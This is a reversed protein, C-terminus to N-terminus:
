ENERGSASMDFDVPPAKGLLHRVLFDWCRRIQYPTPVYDGNPEVALEVDKNARNFAELMRLNGAIPVYSVLNVLMLLKGKLNSALAELQTEQSDQLPAQQSPGEFFDGQHHFMVRYDFINGCVGVRYFDPHELMGRLVGNGGAFEGIIGVRNLDMYPYRDALQRIGAVHDEILEYDSRGYGAEKFAKDRYGTGRGDIQVVIFGLQALAAARYFHMDTAPRFSSKPVIPMGHGLLTDDLIPYSQDPSFHPPRYIVGCIDTNGDAAKIMVPEPWQWGEPLSLDAKELDMVHRGDRDIVYSLTPEDVCTRSVVAFDGSPSLSRPLGAYGRPMQAFGNIGHAVYEHDGGALTTLEGSDVNVRVLDCYYPHRDKVRGATSLFLDRREADFHLIDRVLWEGSTVARKLEGTELCYLYYHAWGTRESIWLLEQTEPLPLIRVAGCPNQTLDLRTQSTEEFLVNTAGNDTDFQVVRAVQYYRDVDVFYATRSNTSWWGLSNEFFGGCGGRIAPLHAYLAYQIRGSGVDIVCIRYNEAHQDEPFAMKRQKVQPRLSGDAPVYHMDSILKVQRQDLQVVLLRQSDPSWRAQLDLRSIFAENGYVPAPIGYRFNEEGDTTLAREAGTTLDRVWINCSRSFAAQRGDPSMVWNAPTQFAEQLAGSADDFTWRKAFASFTVTRPNLRIVPNHSAMSNTPNIPLRNASVPHGSAKALAEALGQHDFALENTGADANVLRFEQGQQLDRQYWFCNSDEIWVPYLAANRALTTTWQAQHFCWARQYCAQMDEPFALAANIEQYNMM